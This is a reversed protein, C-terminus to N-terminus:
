CRRLGTATTRLGIDAAIDDAKRIVDRRLGTEDATILKRNRVVSRGGIIVDRVDSGKACYVLHSVVDYMPTLHPATLDLVVVDAQKGVTLTGIENELGLARAGDVTAMRLAQGATLSEPSGTTLKATLAASRMEEFMDLNNNSAPGDTGLGVTIGRRLMDDAPAAGSALKMNSEPCHVVRTGSEALLDKEEETVHIAHVVVLDPGLLELDRLHEVPRKGYRRGIEAVEWATEAVHIFLKMGRNRCMEHAQRLTDPGCLYPSHCFLGPGLFPHEPFSALFLNARASWSGGERADPAPVDLVGQAIIGRLGIDAFAEASSEMHFYGDAATTTGSLVMEVASLRTGLYVFDPLAHKAEAPFIYDNLWSDLPVDDALGRLLSMAAHTHANVLGPMILCDTCDIVDADATNHGSSDNVSALYGASIRTTDHPECEPNEPDALIIGNTLILEKTM